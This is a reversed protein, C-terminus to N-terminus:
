LSFGLHRGQLLRRDVQEVGHQPARGEDKDRRAVTDTGAGRVAGKREGKGREDM